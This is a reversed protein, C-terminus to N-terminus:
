RSKGGAVFVRDQGAVNGNTVERLEGREIMLDACALMDWTDAAGIGPPLSLTGWRFAGAEELLEYARDRWATFLKLGEETFLNARQSAYNYSM